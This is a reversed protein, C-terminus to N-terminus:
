IGQPYAGSIVVAVIWLQRQSSERYRAGLLKNTLWKM